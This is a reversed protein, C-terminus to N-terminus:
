RRIHREVANLLTKITMESKILLETVGLQVGRQQSQADGFNTLVIIPFPRVGPPLRELVTFGDMVPMHIDMVLLDPTENTLADLVEQGNSVTTTEYGALTFKKHYIERLVLDDEAILIRPKMRQLIAYFNAM